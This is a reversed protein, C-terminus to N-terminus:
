RTLWCAFLLWASTGGIFVRTVYAWALLTVGGWLFAPHVRGRSLLDYVFCGAVFVATMCVSTVPTLPVGSFALVGTPFLLRDTAAGLIALTALVMLRKHTDRKRRVLFGLAVLAGFNALGGLPVALFELPPPLGPVPGRKAAAVAVTTGVVLMAIALLGGAVGVRRHLDTRRTSVLLAQVVLLLIWSTFVLGHLHVLPSLAPTGYLKKLFYTPAFGAFVSLAVAVAMGAFFRREAILPASRTKAQVTM